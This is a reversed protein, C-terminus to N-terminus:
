DWGDHNNLKKIKKTDAFLFYFPVYIVFTDYSKIVTVVSAARPSSAGREIKSSLFFNYTGYIPHSM